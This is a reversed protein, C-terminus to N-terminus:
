RDRPRDLQLIEHRPGDIPNDPKLEGRGALRFGAGLLAKWSAVNGLSVPVVIARAMPNDRWVHEAFAAIMTRGVGHGSMNPDGILYDISVAGSPMEVFPRLEELYEPYDEYRSYQILGIPRGDLLVLYDRSPETGDVSGGFDREIAAPTWDHNWWRHVHPEALWQAILVFDARTVRRFTTEEM